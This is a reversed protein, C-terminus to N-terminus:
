DNCLSRWPSKLLHFLQFTVFVLNLIIKHIQFLTYNLSSKRFQPFLGKQPHELGNLGPLKRKVKGYNQAIGVTAPLM